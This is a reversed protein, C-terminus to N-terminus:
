FLLYPQGTFIFYCSSIWAELLRMRSLRRSSPVHGYTVIDWRTFSVFNTKHKVETKLYVIFMSIIINCLEIVQIGTKTWHIGNNSIVTSHSLTVNSRVLPHTYIANWFYMYKKIKCNQIYVYWNDWDCFYFNVISDTCNSCNQPLHWSLNLDVGVVRCLPLELPCTSSGNSLHSRVVMRLGVPRKWSVYDVLSQSLGPRCRRSWVM